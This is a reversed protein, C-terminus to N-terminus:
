VLGVINYKHVTLQFRSTPTRPLLIYCMLGRGSLVGRVPAGEGSLPVGTRQLGDGVLSMIMLTLTM